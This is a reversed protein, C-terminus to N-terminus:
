WDWDTGELGRKPTHTQTYTERGLQPPSRHCRSSGAKLSSTTVINSGLGWLQKSLRTMADGEFVCSHCNLTEWSRAFHYLDLGDLSFGSLSLSLSFPHQKAKIPLRLCEKYHLINNPYSLSLYAGRENCKDAFCLLRELRREMPCSLTLGLCKVITRTTENWCRRSFAVLFSVHISLHRVSM